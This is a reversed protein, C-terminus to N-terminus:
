DGSNGGERQWHWHPPTWGYTHPGSGRRQQEAMDARSATAGERGKGERSSHQGVSDYCLRFFLRTMYLYPVVSESWRSRGMMGHPSDSHLVLLM